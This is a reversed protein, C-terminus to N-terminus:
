KFLPNGFNTLFAITYIIKHISHLLKVPISGEFLKFKKISGIAREVHVRHRSIKKNEKREILNFQIKDKLFLPTHLTCGISKIEKEVVFGRDALVSDGAELLQLLNSRRFLEKDSISGGYVESIFSIAGSPSIGVMCKLTNCNKYYSFTVQQEAPNSPKQIKFETSDIIVRCSPFHRKFIPPMNKIVKVKSPWININKIKFYIVDIISNMHISIRAQSVDFMYSLFNESIGNKLRIMFMFFLEKANNMENNLNLFQFIVNFQLKSFGTLMLMTKDDKVNEVSLKAAELALKLRTIEANLDSIMPILVDEFGETQTSATKSAPESKDEM